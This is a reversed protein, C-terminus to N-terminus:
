DDNPGPTLTVSVDTNNYLRVVQARYRVGGLVIFLRYAAAPTLWAETAKENDDRYAIVGAEQLEHLVVASVLTSDFADMSLVVKHHERNIEVEMAQDSLCSMTHKVYIRSKETM